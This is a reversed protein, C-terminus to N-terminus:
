DCDDCRGTAPLAVSCTPCMRLVPEPVAARRPAAARPATRTRPAKPAKPPVVPAAGIPELVEFGRKRLITVAGAIGGSFEEPTAARGTAYRHAVGLIAKSDYEQDEHVIPYGRTPEFGYLGLFNTRGRDDFEAIAQLIHTRTVASFTAM